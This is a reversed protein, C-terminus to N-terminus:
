TTSVKQRIAQVWQEYPLAPGVAHREAVRRMTAVWFLRQWWPADLYHWITDSLAVLRREYDNATAALLTIKKEPSLEDDSTAKIVDALTAPPASPKM